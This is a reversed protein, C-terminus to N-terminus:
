SSKRLNILNAIDTMVSKVVSKCYFSTIVDVALKPTGNDNWLATSSGVNTWYNVGVVESLATLKSLADKIWNAQEQQTMEGNIDVIPVGFEGLVIKGVLESLM